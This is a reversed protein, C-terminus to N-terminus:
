SESLNSTIRVLREEIRLLVPLTLFKISRM